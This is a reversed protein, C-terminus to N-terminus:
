ARTVEVQDETAVGPLPRNRLSVRPLHAHPAAPRGPFMPRQPIPLDVLQASVTMMAENLLSGFGILARGLIGAVCDGLVGQRTVKLHIQGGDRLFLYAWAHELNDTVLMVVVKVLLGKSEWDVPHFCYSVADPTEQIVEPRWVSADFHAIAPPLAHQSTPKGNGPQDSPAVDPSTPLCM